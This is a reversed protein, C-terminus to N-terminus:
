KSELAETCLDVIQVTQKEGCECTAKSKTADKSWNIWNVEKMCKICITDFNPNQYCGTTVQIYNCSDKESDLVVAYYKKGEVVRNHLRM